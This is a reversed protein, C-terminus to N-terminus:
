IQNIYKWNSNSDKVSNCWARQEPSISPSNLWNNIGTDVMIHTLKNQITYYNNGKMNMINDITIGTNTTGENIKEVLEKFYNYYSNTKYDINPYHHKITAYSSIASAVAAGIASQTTFGLAAAGEKISLCAQEYGMEHLRRLGLITEFIERKYGDFTTMFEAVVPYRYIRAM